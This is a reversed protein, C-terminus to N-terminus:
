RKGKRDLLVAPPIIDALPINTIEAGGKDQIIQMYRNRLQFDESQLRDPNTFMFYIFGFIVAGVPLTAFIFAPIQLAQPLWNIAGLTPFTIIGCLWLMPNLASRVTIRGSAENAHAGSSKGLLEAVNQTMKM